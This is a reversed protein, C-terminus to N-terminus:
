LSAMGITLKASRVEESAVAPAQTEGKKRRVAGEGRKLSDTKLGSHDKQDGAHMLRKRYHWKRQLARLHTCHLPENQAM